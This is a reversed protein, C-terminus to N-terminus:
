FSYLIDTLNNNVDLVSIFCNGFKEAYKVANNFSKFKNLYYRSSLHWINTKPSTLYVYYM